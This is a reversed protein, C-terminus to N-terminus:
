RLSCMQHLRCIERAMELCMLTCILQLLVSSIFIKYVPLRLSVVINCGRWSTDSELDLERVHVRLARWNNSHEFFMFDQFYFTSLNVEILNGKILYSCYPCSREVTKFNLWLIFVNTQSLSEIVYLFPGWSRFLVSWPWIEKMECLTDCAQCTEDGLCHGWDPSLTVFELRLSVFSRLGWASCYIITVIQARWGFTREWEGEEREWKSFVDHVVHRFIFSHCEFRQDKCQSSHVLPLLVM